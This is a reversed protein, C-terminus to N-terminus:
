CMEILLVLLSLRTDQMEQKSSVCIKVTLFFVSSSFHAAAVEMRVVFLLAITLCFFSVSINM